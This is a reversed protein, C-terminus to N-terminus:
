FLKKFKNVFAGENKSKYEELTNKLKDNEDRLKEAIAENENIRSELKKNEDELGNIRNYFDGLLEFANYLSLKILIINKFDAIEIMYNRDFFTFGPCSISNFEVDPKLKWIKIPSTKLDDYDIDFSFDDQNMDVKCEFKSASISDEVIICDLTSSCSGKFSIFEGDFAVDEISIDLNNRDNKVIHMLGTDDFSFEVYSDEFDLIEMSKSKLYSEKVISNYKYHIKVLHDEFGLSSLPIVVWNNKVPSEYTIEQTKPNVLYFKFEDYNKFDDFFNISFVCKVKINEGDVSIFKFNANLDEYQVAEKLDLMSKYEDKIDEPIKHRFKLKKSSLLLLDDWDRNKVMEYLTRYYSNLNLMFREPVMNVIEYINELLFNHHEQTFSDVREILIPIDLTLWKMYKFRLVYEDDINGKVFENVMRLIEFRDTAWKININQTISPTKQRKRWYYVCENLMGITKAKAYVEISFLNDQYTLDKDPFTISNEELFSRKYLKNWLFMDWSLEPTSQLTTSEVTGDINKFVFKPIDIEWYRKEDFRLFKGMVVDHDHRNALDYLKEYADSAIYDDADMFHIYEGRSQELGFNRAINVGGHQIHFAHFNEYNRCYEDIIYRSNDFSGDDVMIVELDNMITQNVVSDLAERIYDECNYVGMIVSIKVM